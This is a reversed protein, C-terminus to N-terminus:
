RWASYPDGSSAGSLCTARHTLNQRAVSCRCGCRAGGIGAGPPLPQKVPCAPQTGAGVPAIVDAGIPGFADHLAVDGIVKVGLLATGGPAQHQRGVVLLERDIELSM